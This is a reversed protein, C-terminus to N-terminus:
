HWDNTKEDTIELTETDILYFDVVKTSAVENGSKDKFKIQYVYERSGNEVYSENIIIYHTAITSIGDQEYVQEAINVYPYGKASINYALFESLEDGAKVGQYSETNRIYTAVATLEKKYSQFEETMPYGDSDTDIATDDEKKQQSFINENDIREDESDDTIETTDDMAANEEIMSDYEYGDVFPDFGGKGFYDTFLVEDGTILPNRYEYYDVYVRLFARVYAVCKIGDKEVIEKLECIKKDELKIGQIDIEVKNYRSKNWVFEHVNNEFKKGKSQFWIIWILAIISIGMGVYFMPYSKVFYCGISLLFLVPTMIYIIKRRNYKTKLLQYPMAYELSLMYELAKRDEDTMISKIIM